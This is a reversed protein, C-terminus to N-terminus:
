VVPFMAQNKTLSLACLIRWHEGFHRLCLPNECKALWKGPAANCANSRLVKNLMQQANDAGWVSPGGGRLRGNVTFIWRHTVNGFFLNVFEFRICFM